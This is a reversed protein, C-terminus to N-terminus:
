GSDRGKRSSSKGPKREDETEYEVRGDVFNRVARPIPKEGEELFVEPASNLRRAERAIAVIAEYASPTRQLIEDKDIAPKGEPDATKDDTL